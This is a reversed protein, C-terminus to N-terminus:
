RVRHLPEDGDLVRQMNEFLFRAKTHQADVTGAAFHPTIVVNDLGFLPHDGPAPEEALVDLGAGSLHGCVLADRLAAEDVVAGRATNILIGGAPMRALLEAGVLGRTQETLPLHLSVVDSSAFLEGIDALEHVGLEAARASPQASRRTCLLRCGFAAFRVAAEQAIRGFGVFGVTLASLDRSVDRYTWKPWGGAQVANHADVTRRTVALTLGLTHEAVTAPTGDPCIAVPVDFDRHLTFDIRDTGVGQRQILKLRRAAELHGRDINVDVSIVFDAEAFKELQEARDDLRDLTTLEWGQPLYRRYIEAVNDARTFYFVRVPRQAATPPSPPRTM